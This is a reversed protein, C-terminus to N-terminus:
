GVRRIYSGAVHIHNSTKFWKTSMNANIATYEVTAPSAVPLQYFFKGYDFETIEFGGMEYAGSDYQYRFSAPILLQQNEAQDFFVAATPLDLYAHGSPGTPGVGMKIDINLDIVQGVGGLTTARYAAGYYGGTGLNWNSTAFPDFQVWSPGGGDARELRRLREEINQFTRPSYQYPVPQLQQM